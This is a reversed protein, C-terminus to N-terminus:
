FNFECDISTNNQFQNIQPYYKKFKEWFCSFIYYTLEDKTLFRYKIIINLFLWYEYLGIFFIMIIHKFLLKYIFNKEKFHIQYCIYYLITSATLISSFVISKIFLKDNHKDSKDNQDQANEYLNNYVDDIYYGQFHQFIIDYFPDNDLYLFDISSLGKMQDLVAQKEIKTVYYFYFFTELFSLMSLHIFVHLFIEFYYKYNYFYPKKNTNNTDNIDNNISSLYMLEINESSGITPSNM